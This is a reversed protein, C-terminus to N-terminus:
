ANYKIKYHKKASFTYNPSAISYDLLINALTVIVKLMSYPM